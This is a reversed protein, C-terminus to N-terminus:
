FRNDATRAVHLISADGATERGAPAAEPATKLRSCENFVNFTCGACVSRDLRETIQNIADAKSQFINDEGIARLYGGRKLLKRDHHTIGSITLSGGRRRWIRAETRLFEAAAVDIVSIGKADVLLHRCRPTRRRLENFCDTVYSVGGFFLPGRIGIIEFQPCTKLAKIDRHVLRRNPLDPDPALRYVSPSSSRNLYFILSLFVGGLIAFELDLILTGLFTAGLVCAERLDALLIEHIQARDILRYAVYLIVGSLVPMPIESALPAAVWAAIALLASSIIVALPTAAGAQFNLGSRTFSGSVAYGGVFSGILNAMGQGNVERTVNVRNQTKLSLAQAISIAEIIGFVAIALADTSLLQLSRSDLSPLTPAPLSDPIGPLYAVGFGRANILYAVLSGGVLAILMFPSRPAAKRLGVITGLTAFCLCASAANISSLRNSLAGWTEYASLGAELDLGFVHRIQSTAILVAAGATFGVIVSHSVFNALRGARLLAFGLQFVGVLFTLTLALAVFRDSGPLAHQSVTSFVLISIATTPGTVMQRSDGFIAAAVSAVIATYLGYQPPLGAIIAFAVGQPLAFAAGTLGAVCDSTLGQRDKVEGLWHTAPLFDRLPLLREITGTLRAM